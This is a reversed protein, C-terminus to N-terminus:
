GKRRRGGPLFCASWRGGFTRRRRAAAHGGPRARAGCGNVRVRAHAAAIDPHGEVSIFDVFVPEVKAETCIPARGYKAYADVANIRRMAEVAPREEV